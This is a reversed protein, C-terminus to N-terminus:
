DGPSRVRTLSLEDLSTYVSLVPRVRHYQFVHLYPQGASAVGRIVPSARAIHNVQSHNWTRPYCLQAKSEIFVLLDENVSFVCRTWGDEMVVGVHTPVYWDCEPPPLDCIFAIEITRDSWPLDYNITGLVMSAHIPIPLVVTQSLHIWCLHHYTTLPM